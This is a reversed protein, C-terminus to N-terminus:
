STGAAAPATLRLRTAVAPLAAPLAAPRPGAIPALGFHDLIRVSATERDALFDAYWVALHELGFTVLFRGPPANHLEIRAM